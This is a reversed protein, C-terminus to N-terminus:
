NIYFCWWHLIIFLFWCDLLKGYLTLNYYNGRTVNSKWEIWGCLIVITLMFSFQVLVVTSIRLPKFMVFIYMVPSTRRIFSIVSHYHAFFLLKAERGTESIKIYFVLNYVAGISTTNKENRQMWYQLCM